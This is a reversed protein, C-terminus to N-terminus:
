RINFHLRLYLVHNGLNCLKRHMLTVVILKTPALVPQVTGGLIPVRAKTRSIAQAFRQGSPANRAGGVMNWVTGGVLGVNLHHGFVTVHWSSMVCHEIQGRSVSCSLEGQM